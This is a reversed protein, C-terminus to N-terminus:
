QFKRESRPTASPQELTELLAEAAPRRSFVTGSELLAVLEHRARSQEGAQALGVALHYRIDGNTPARRAAQELLGLGKDIRGEQVLLWGYTDIIDARSPARAYAREALEIARADGQEHYLWALNNLALVNAPRIELVRRYEAMARDKEGGQHLTAAYALRVAADDPNADLWESLTAVADAEGARSRAAYLKLVTASTPAADIARAYADTAARADGRAIWVDGELAFGASSQPQAEQLARAIRLAEDHQGTRLALTGLGLRATIHGPSIRLVRELARRANAADRKGAYALALQIHTEASDPYRGALESLTGIADDHMGTAVQTRGLLLTTAALQPAIAHAERALALARGANGRRLQYGALILRPQLARPNKERARELLAIGERTRGEESAMSALAVLAVPQHAHRELVREYAARAEDRKGERLDMRALNLAATAYDPNLQVAKRYSQRAMADDNSGEYAAGLLNQLRASAPNKEALRSAAAIAQDFARNQLHTVVLLADGRSFHPNSRVARELEAVADGPDGTALYGVALQTRIAADDPALSAAQDLEIHVAALLKRAEDDTPLQELYRELLVRAQELERRMFHRRGAKLLSQAEATTVRAAGLETRHTDPATFGLDRAHKLQEHGRATDGLDVYTRGLLWRAEAHRPDIQLVRELEGLAARMDGSARHDRARTLHESLAEGDDACGALVLLALGLAVHACRRVTATM